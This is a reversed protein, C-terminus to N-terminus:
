NCGRRQKRASGLFDKFLGTGCSEFLSSEPPDAGTAKGPIEPSYEDGKNFPVQDIFGLTDVFVQKGPV